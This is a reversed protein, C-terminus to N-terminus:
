DQKRSKRYSEPIDYFEEIFPDNIHTIESLFYGLNLPPMDLQVYNYGYQPDVVRSVGKNYQEGIYRDTNFYVLDGIKFTSVM